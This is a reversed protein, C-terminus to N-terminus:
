VMQKWRISKSPTLTLSEIKDLMKGTGLAVCSLPDDARQIKINTEEWLLRDLGYLLSGGGTLLIGTKMIDASLEPPTKELTFRIADVITNLSESFADRVEASTLSFTKPFGTVLDRGSVKIHREKEFPYASGIDIKIKEAMREGILFNYNKKCYAIIAEDFEDGAIRVSKSVVIGGMSIVAVETTGGGMDIVMHGNPEEINVSAGIAAAIPEEVLYTERAGAQSAAEIVARKEVPTIGCPVGILVRPKMVGKRKYAKKIFARIMKETVEFDAIVGEKMPRVAIINSPTRGVMDRAERGIALVRRSSKDMAVVSPESFAIGVGRVYVVTNATGLDIGMDSSFQNTFATWYQKM